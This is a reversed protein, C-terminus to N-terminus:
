EPVSRRKQQQTTEENVDTGMIKKLVEFSM